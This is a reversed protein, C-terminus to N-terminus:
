AVTVNSVRKAEGHLIPYISIPNPLYIKQFSTFSSTSSPPPPPLPRPPPVTSAYSCFYEIKMFPCAWSDTYMPTTARKKQQFRRKYEWVNGWIGKYKRINRIQLSGSSVLRKGHSPGKIRHPETQVLSTCSYCSPSLVLSRMCMLFIGALNTPRITRIILEERNHRQLSYQASRRRHPNPAPWYYYNWRLPTQFKLPVRLHTPTKNM